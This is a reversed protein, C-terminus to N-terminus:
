RLSKDLVTVTGKSGDVRVKMGDKLDQTATKTAVVCPIGLERSVIAPHSTIGGKDTIIAVAKNMMIVMSPETMETVLVDGDSFKSLDKVGEVIKVLGESIGASGAVGDLIIENSM